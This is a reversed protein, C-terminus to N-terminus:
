RDPLSMESSNWDNFKRFSERRRINFLFDIAHGLLSITWNTLRESGAACNFVSHRRWRLKRTQLKALAHLTNWNKDMNLNEWSETCVM